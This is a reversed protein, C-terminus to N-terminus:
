FENRHLVISSKKYKFGIKCYFNQAGINSAQTSASLYKCTNEKLLYGIMNSAVQKKRYLPDVVILDITAQGKNLIYLLFGRIKERFEYVVLGTGRNGLFFNEVWKYKVLKAEKKSFNKDIHFRSNTIFKSLNLVSLLDNKNSMRCNIDDLKQNGDLSFTIPFDICCFNHKQLFISKSFENSDLKCTIFGKPLDIKKNEFKGQIKLNYCNKKLVGTLWQDKLIEYKM